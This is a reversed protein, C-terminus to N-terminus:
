PNYDDYHQSIGYESKVVHHIPQRRTYGLRCQDSVWISVRRELWLFGAEVKSEPQSLRNIGSNAEHGRFIDILSHLITFAFLIPLIKSERLAAGLTEAENVLGLNNTIADVVERAQLVEVILNEPVEVFVAHGVEFELEPLTLIRSRVGIVCCSHCRTDCALGWQLYIVKEPTLDEIEGENVGIERGIVVFVRNLSEDIVLEEEFYIWRNRLFGVEKYHILLCAKFIVDQLEPLALFQVKM